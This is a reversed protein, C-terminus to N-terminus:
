LTVSKHDFKQFNFTWFYFPRQSSNEGGVLSIGSAFPRGILSIGAFELSVM